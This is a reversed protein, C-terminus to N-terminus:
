TLYELIRQGAHDGVVRRIWALRRREVFRVPWSARAYYEDIDHTRAFRDNWQEVNAIIPTSTTM